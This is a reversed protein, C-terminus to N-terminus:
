KARIVNRNTYPSKDYSQTLDRGKEKLIEKIIFIFSLQVKVHITTWTANNAKDDLYHTKKENETIAAYLFTKTFSPIYLYDNVITSSVNATHLCKLKYM